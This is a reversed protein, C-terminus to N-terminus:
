FHFAPPWMKELKALSMLTASDFNQTTFEAKNRFCYANILSKEDQLCNALHEYFKLASSEILYFRGNRTDVTKIIQVDCRKVDTLNRELSHLSCARRRTALRRTM